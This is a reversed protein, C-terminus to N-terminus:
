PGVVREREREGVQGDAVIGAGGSDFGYQDARREPELGIAAV